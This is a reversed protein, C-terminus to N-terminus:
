IDFYKELLAICRYSEFYVLGDLYHVALNWEARRAKALDAYGSGYKKKTEGKKFTVYFTGNSKHEFIFLDGLQMICRYEQLNRKKVYQFDNLIFKNHIAMDKYEQNVAKYLATDAKKDSIPSHQPIILLKNGLVRIEEESTLMEEADTILDFYMFVDNAINVSNALCILKVPPRGQLERNRNVSEYLSALAMGEAKIKRVHPEAIFEDYVIYDIDSYDMGRLNAFTSLAMNICIPEGDVLVQGIKNFKKIEFDVGLDNFVAKYSTGDETNQLDAENQTRRLQIIKKKKKYFYQLAGYTKGTGRAAPVFIFPEPREIIAPMNLYGNKQYLKFTKLKTM